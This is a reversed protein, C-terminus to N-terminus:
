RTLEPRDRHLARRGQEDDGQDADADDDAVNTRGSAARISEVGGCIPQPGAVISKVM